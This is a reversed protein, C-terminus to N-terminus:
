ANGGGEGADAADGRQGMFGFRIDYSVLSIGQQKKVGSIQWKQNSLTTLTSDPDSVTITAADQSVATITYEFYYGDNEFAITMGLIDNPWTLLVHTGPTALTVVKTAGNTSAYAGTPFDDYKYVVIDAPEFVLQRFQSRLSTAPFRRWVDYKGDYQFIFDPDAWVLNGDGWRSDLSKDIPALLKEKFNDNERIASIQVALDGVNKTVLHVRTAWQGKATANFDMSASRYLWPVHVTDVAAVPTFTSIDTYDLKVDTKWDYTHRLIWGREDGRILDGEFVAMASPQFHVGNNWLLFSSDEKIGQDLFLVFLSDCAGTETSAATWYVRRNLRDHTGHIRARQRASRTFAAYTYDISLSIKQITYGDTFYFGDNGAFFIGMDTQVISAGNICGINGSVRDHTLAGQGLENFGGVMRYVKSNTFAVLNTKAVGLGSVDEDLDDYFSMSVANPTGPISQIIRNGFFQTGDYVGGYYATNQLLAMFKAKPPEEAGVVGGTTYLSERDALPSESTTSYTDNTNDSYTTVGNALEALLYLTNGADITRYVQIVTSTTDYHTELTNTLANIGSIVTPYTYSVTKYVDGAGAITENGFGTAVAGVPYQVPYDTAEVLIPNSFTTFEVGDSTTYTHKYVFGYIYDGVEPIYYEYTRVNQYASYETLTQAVLHIDTNTMHQYFCNYFEEALLYWAATSDGKSNADALQEDSGSRVSSSAIVGPVVTSDYAAHYLSTITSTSYTGKKDTTTANATKSLTATGSGSATVRASRRDGPSYTATSFASSDDFYVRSGVTLTLATAGDSAQVNTINASGASTDCEFRTFTTGQADPYHVKAYGVRIWFLTLIADDLTLPDPLTCLTEHGIKLGSYDWTANLNMQHFLRSYPPNTGDSTRVVADRSIYYGNSVHGNYLYKLLTVFYVFRSHDATVLPKGASNSDAIEATTVEYRNLFNYDSQPQNSTAQIGHTLFALRHWYWKQRLDNLRTRCEELTTPAGINTVTIHPGGKVNSDGNTVDYLFAFAHPSQANPAAADSIHAQAALSLAQVLTYLTAQDSAAPAPTPATTHSRMYPSSVTVTQLYALSYYDIFYHLWAAIGAGTTPGSYYQQHADQFHSLMSTRLANALTICKNLLTTDDYTPNGTVQPLGMSRVQLANTEDRYVKVPYSPSDTTLLLHGNWQVQSAFAGAGAGSFVPNSAPGTLTSLGTYLSEPYLIDSGSHFFLEAEDNFYLFGDLRRERTSSLRYVSDKFLTSGERSWLKGDNTINFNDAREYCNTRSQMFFDTMGGSFDKVEFPLALQNDM